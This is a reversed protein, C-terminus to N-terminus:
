HIVLPYLLDFRPIFVEFYQGSETRFTYSGEMFGIPDQIVAGSTYEFEAGSELVPQEGLVGPGIIEALQESGSTIVWHRELLQVSLGSLNEIKITYSFAFLGDDPESSEDVHESFVSIRIDDTIASYM